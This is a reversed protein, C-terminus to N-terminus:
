GNSGVSLQAIVDQAQLTQGSAQPKFTKGMASIVVGGGNALEQLATDADLGDPGKGTNQVMSAAGCIRSLFAAATNARTPAVDGAADGATAGSALWQNYASEYNYEDRYSQVGEYYQNVANLNAVVAASDMPNPNPNPIVLSGPQPIQDLDFSAGNGPTSDAGAPTGSASSGSSAEPLSRLVSSFDGAARLGPKLAQGLVDFPSNRIAQIM